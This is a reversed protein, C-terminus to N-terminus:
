SCWARSIENVEGQIVSLSVVEWEEFLESRSPLRARATIHNLPVGVLRWGFCWETPSSQDSALWTIGKGTGRWSLPRAVVEDERVLCLAELADV